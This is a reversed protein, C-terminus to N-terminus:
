KNDKIKFYIVKDSIKMDKKKSMEIELKKLDSLKNYENQKAVLEKNLEEIEKKEIKIQKELKSVKLLLNNHLIFISFIIIICGIIKKKKM